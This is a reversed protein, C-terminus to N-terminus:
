AMTVRELAFRDKTKCQCKHMFGSVGMLILITCVLTCQVDQM